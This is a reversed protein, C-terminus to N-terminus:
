FDRYQITCIGNVNAAFCVAKTCFRFIEIFFSHCFPDTKGMFMTCFYIDCGIDKSVICIKFTHSVIEFFNIFKTSISYQNRVQTYKSHCSFRSRIQFDMNRCLCVVGVVLTGAHPILQTRSTHNNGSFKGQTFNAFNAFFNRRIHFDFGKNMTSHANRIRASAQQAIVEATTIGIFASTGMGATPFVMQNFFCTGTFIHGNFFVFSTSVNVIRFVKTHDVMNRIQNFGAYDAQFDFASHFSREINACNDLCITLCNIIIEFIWCFIFLFALIIQIFYGFCTM